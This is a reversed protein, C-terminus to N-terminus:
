CGPLTGATKLHGLHRSVRLAKTWNETCALTRNLARFATADLETVMDSAAAPQVSKVVLSVADSDDEPTWEYNKGVGILKWIVPCTNM